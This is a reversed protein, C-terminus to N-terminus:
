KMEYKIPFLVADPIVTALLLNIQNLNTEEKIEFYSLRKNQQVQRIFFSLCVPKTSRIYVYIPYHIIGVPYLPNFGNINSLIRHLLPRSNRYLHLYNLKSSMISLITIKEHVCTM